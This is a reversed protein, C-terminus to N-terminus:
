PRARVIMHSECLDGSLTLQFTRTKTLDFCRQAYRSREEKLVHDPQVDNPRGFERVHWLWICGFNQERLFLIKTKTRRAHM